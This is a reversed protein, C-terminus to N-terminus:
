SLIVAQNRLQFNFLIQVSGATYTGNKLAPRFEWTKVVELATEDLDTWGSSDAVQVKSVEGLETVDVRLRVQGEHGRKRAILPYKPLPNSIGEGQYVPDRSPESSSYSDEMPSDEQIEKLPIKDIAPLSKKSPPEKTKFVPKEPELSKEFVVRVVLSSSPDDLEWTGWAVAAVLGGHLTVSLVSSLLSSHIM